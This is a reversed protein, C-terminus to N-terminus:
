RCLIRRGNELINEAILDFVGIEREVGDREMEGVVDDV